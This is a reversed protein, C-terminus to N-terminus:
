RLYNEGRNMKFTIKFELLVQRREKVLLFSSWVVLLRAAYAIAVLM